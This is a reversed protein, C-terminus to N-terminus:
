PPDQRGVDQYDDGLEDHAEARARDGDEAVGAVRTDVGQVVQDGQQSQELRGNLIRDEKQGEQLNYLNHDIKLHAM